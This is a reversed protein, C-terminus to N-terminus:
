KFEKVLFRIEAVNFTKKKTLLANMNQLRHACGTIFTLIQHTASILSYRLTLNRPTFM